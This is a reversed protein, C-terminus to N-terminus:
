IECNNWFNKEIMKNMTIREEIIKKIKNLLEPHKLTLEKISFSLITVLTSDTLATATAMRTWNETFLAMEWLIEEANVDWLVIEAWNINKSIRVIWEKLLYMANADEWETFLVEWKNLIKHQCFLSLSAKESQNLWSLLAINDLISM